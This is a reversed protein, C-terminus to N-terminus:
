DFPVTTAQPRFLKPWVLVGAFKLLTTANAAPPRWLRARTGAGRGGSTILQGCSRSRVVKLSTGGISGLVTWTILPQLTTLLVKTCSARCVFPQSVVITRAYATTSAQLWVFIQVWVMVTRIAGSIRPKVVVCVLPGSPMWTITQTATCPAPKPGNLQLTLLPFGM